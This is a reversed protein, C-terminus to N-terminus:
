YDDYNELYYVLNLIFLYSGTANKGMDKNPLFWKFTPTIRINFNPYFTYSAAFNVVHEDSNEGETGDIKYKGQLFGGASLSFANWDNFLYILSLGYNFRDGLKKTFSTEVPEGYVQTYTKEFNHQWSLDISTQFKNKIISKLASVGLTTAFVGKGTIETETTASEDSKGTPLILGLTAAFYPTKHDTRNKGNIEYVQFEHLFEYRGNITIDGIGSGSPQPLGPLENRNYIFPLSVGAQLQKNFRYGASLLPKMQYSTHSINRWEGTENWVGSYSEYNFGANFLAKKSLPIVAVDYVSGGCCSQSYSASYFLSFVSILFLIRKM